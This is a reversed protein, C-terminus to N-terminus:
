VLLVGGLVESPTRVAAKLQETMILGNHITFHKNMVIHRKDLGVIAEVLEGANVADAFYFDVEAMNFSQMLLGALVKKVVMASSLSTSWYALTNLLAASSVSYSFASLRNDAKEEASLRSRRSPLFQTSPILSTAAQAKISPWARKLFHQRYDATVHEGIM